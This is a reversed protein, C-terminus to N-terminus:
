GFHARNTLDPKRGALMEEVVFRIVSADPPCGPVHIDVPVVEHIPRVTDLLKPVSAHPTVGNISATEVYVRRKLQEIAFRNRMAPINGTVACDGLAVLVTASKRVRRIKELDEESSVAGEVLAVDVQEPFTKIDILPSYVIEIKDMLAVVYHDMDLFSM